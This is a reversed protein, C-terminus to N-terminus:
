RVFLHTLRQHSSTPLTAFNGEDFGKAVWSFSWAVTCFFLWFNFIEPPCAEIAQITDKLLSSKGMIATRLPHLAISVASSVRCYLRNQKHGTRTPLSTSSVSTLGDQAPKAPSTVGRRSNHHGWVKSIREHSWRLTRVTADSRGSSM